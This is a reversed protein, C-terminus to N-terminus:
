LKINGQFVLFAPGQMTVTKDAFFTFTLLDGSRTVVPISDLKLLKHTFYAVAMAGTGCSLTEGEVGREYTRAWVKKEIIQAFNVNAGAPFLKTHHRLRAGLTAVDIAQLNDVFIVLHPVGTDIFLARHGELDLAPYEQPVGMEITVLAGEVSCSKVGVATEILCSGKEGLIHKALCRLGNGCMAAEAGDPNFIQMRYPAKSGTTLVIVGDAGIGRHRQTLKKVLESTLSFNLSRQDLIIFDNGSGQFKYFHLIQGM